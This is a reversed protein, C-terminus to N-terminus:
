EGDVSPRGAGTRVFALLGGALALNKALMIQQDPTAHFIFGSIICFGALAGAAIRTQFGILLAIGGGFEVLIVLPLLFEPVGMSTMYGATGAYDTIKGYGAMIFIFAMLARAALALLSNLAPTAVLAAIRNKVTTNLSM